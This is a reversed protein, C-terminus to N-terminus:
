IKPINSTNNINVESTNTKQRISQMNSLVDQPLKFDIDTKTSPTTLKKYDESILQSIKEANQFPSSTDNKHDRLVVNGDYFTVSKLDSLWVDHGDKDITEAIFFTKNVEDLHCFFENDNKADTIILCYNANTKSIKKQEETLPIVTQGTGVWQDNEKRLPFIDNKRLPNTFEINM